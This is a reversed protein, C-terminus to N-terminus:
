PQPDTQLGRNFDPQNYFQNRERIFTRGNRLRRNPDPTLYLSVNGVKLPLDPYVVDEPYNGFRFQAYVYRAGSVGNVPSVTTKRSVNLSAVSTAFIGTSNPALGYVFGALFDPAGPVTGSIALTDPRVDRDLDFMWSFSAARPVTDITRYELDDTSQSAADYGGTVYFFGSYIASSSGAGAQTLPRGFVWSSLKGDRSITALQVDLLEDNGTGFNGFGGGVILYGNYVEAFFFERPINFSTTKSWGGIEHTVPDIIAYEVTSSHGTVDHYGGLAYLTGNAAVVQNNRIQSSLSDEPTWAGISGNPNIPAKETSDTKGSGGTNGGARYVYGDYVAVDFEAWTTPLASNQLTWGGTLDGNSQPTIYEVSASPNTWGADTYGGMVYLRGQYVFGAGRQRAVNLQSTTTSWSGITGDNTNITARQVNGLGGSCWTASVCGGIVYVYGNHILTIHHARRTMKDADQTGNLNLGQGGNNIGITRTDGTPGSGCRANTEDYTNCGGILYIIGSFTASAGYTRATGITYISTTFAGVTGDANIPAFQIDNLEATNNNGSIVYIHGNMIETAHGFRATTFQDTSDTNWASINGSGDLEAWEISNHITAGNRGGTVYIRNNYTAAAQGSRASNLAAISTTTWGTVDGSTANITGKEVSTISGAGNNGGIAYLYGNYAVMSHHYRATALNATATSWNAPLSGDPNPKIYLTTARITGCATATICGGVVYIANNHVVAALRGRAEGAPLNTVASYAGIQGGSSITARQVTQVATNCQTGATTCGGIAYIYGNFVVSATESRATMDDDDVAGNVEGAPAILAREVVNTYAATGSDNCSGFYTDPDDDSALNRCGGIMYFYDDNQAWASWLNVTTPANTTQSWTGVRGNSLIPAYYTTNQQGTCPFYLPASFPNPWGITDCGAIVYLYGRHAIMRHGGKRQPMTGESIFTGIAGTIPDIPASWIRNDERPTGIRPSYGGSIYVRGEYQAVGQGYNQGPYDNTFNWTGISGNANLPAYQISHGDNAVDTTCENVAYLRNNYAFSDGYCTERVLNTGTVWTGITGDINIPAYYTELSSASLLGAGGMVYIFGNHAEMYHGRRGSGPFSTTPSFTGITGDANVTAMRVDTTIASAGAGGSVYMYGNYITAAASHRRENTGSGLPTESSWSTIEGGTVPARNIYGDVDTDIDINHDLKARAFDGASTVRITPDISIPYPLDKLGFSKITLVSNDLTFVSLDHHIKGDADKIIPAPISFVKNTKTSNAKAKEVLQRDSDSGYSVNGFLASDASYIGIDGNQELRAEIGVPLELDFAFSLEDKTYNPVIIDEKVGNYKFSYIMQANQQFLPYVVYGDKQQGSYAKFRPKLTLDIKSINDTIRIGERIDIPFEANYAGKITGASVDAHNQQALLPLTDLIYRDKQDGIRLYQAHDEWSKGILEKGLPDLRYRDHEIYPLAISSLLYILIGMLAFLSPVLGKKYRRYIHLRWQGIRWHLLRLVYRLRNWTAM